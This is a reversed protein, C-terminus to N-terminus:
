HVTHPLVAAKCTLKRVCEEPSPGICPNSFYSVQGCHAQSHPSGAMPVAAFYLDANNANYALSFPKYALPGAFRTFAGNQFMQINNVAWHSTYLFTSSLHWMFTAALLDAM